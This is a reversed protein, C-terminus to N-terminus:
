MCCTADRCDWGWSGVWVSPMLVVVVMALVFVLFLFSVRWSFIGVVVPTERSNWNRWDHQFSSRSYFEVFNEFLASTEELLIPPKKQIITSWCCFTTKFFGAQRDAQSPCIYRYSPLFVYLGFGAKLLFFLNRAM